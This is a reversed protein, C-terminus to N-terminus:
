GDFVSVIIPTTGLTEKVLKFIGAENLNQAPANRSNAM